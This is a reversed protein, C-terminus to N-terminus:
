YAAPEEVARLANEAYRYESAPIDAERLLGRVFRALDAPSLRRYTGANHRNAFPAFRTAVTQTNM